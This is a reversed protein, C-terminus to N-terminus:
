LRSYSKAVRAGALRAAGHAPNPGFGRLKGRRGRDAGRWSVLVYGHRALRYNLYIPHGHAIHILDLRQLRREATRQARGVREGRQLVFHCPEIHVRLDSRLIEVLERAQRECM